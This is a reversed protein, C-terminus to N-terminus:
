QEKPGFTEHFWEVEEFRHVLSQITEDQDPFEMTRLAMKIEWEEPRYGSAVLQDFLGVGRGTLLEPGKLYGWQVLQLLRGTTYVIARQISSLDELNM